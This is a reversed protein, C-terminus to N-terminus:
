DLRLGFMPPQTNSLVMVPTGGTLAAALSVILIANATERWAIM